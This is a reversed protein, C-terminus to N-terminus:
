GKKLFNNSSLSVIKKNLNEAEHSVNGSIEKM